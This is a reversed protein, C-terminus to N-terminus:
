KLVCDVQFSHCLRHSARSAFIHRVGEQHAHQQKDAGEQDRVVELLELRGREEGGLDAAEDGVEGDDDGDDGHGQRVVGDADLCGLQADGVLQLGRVRVAVPDKTREDSDRGPEGEGGDDGGHQAGDEDEHVLLDRRDDDVPLLVLQLLGAPVVEVQQDDGDEDDDAGDEAQGPEHGGGHQGDVVDLRQRALGLRRRGALLRLEQADALLAHGVDGDEHRDAGGHGHARQQPLDGHRHQVSDEQVHAHRREVAELEEVADQQEEHRLLVLGVIGVQPSHRHLPHVEEGQDLQRTEDPEPDDLVDLGCGDEEWDHYNLPKLLSFRYLVLYIRNFNCNTTM